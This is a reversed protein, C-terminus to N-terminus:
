WVIFCSDFYWRCVYSYLLYFFSLLLANFFFKPIPLFIMAHRCAISDIWFLLKIILFFFHFHQWTLPDPLTRCLPLVLMEPNQSWFRFVSARNGAFFFFFVFRKLLLVINGHLFLLDLYCRSVICWDKNVHWSGLLYLTSGTM